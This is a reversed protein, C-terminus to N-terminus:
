VEHAPENDDADEMLDMPIETTSNLGSRRGKAASTGTQGDSAIGREVEERHMQHNLELLRDLIEHRAAEGLTWRLGEDTEHFGYDLNVDNWGYADCVTRDLDAHFSRLDRVDSEDDNGDHVRNYLSTLGLNHSTMTRSRIESLRHGIDAVDHDAKPFPFTEFCDPPNYVPRDVHTGGHRRAWTRHLTSSLVGFTFYDDAAIVTLREAYVTGTPVLMPLMVKSVRPIVVVNRFADIAKYLTTATHGFRWWYKVYGPSKKKDREPKVLAVVRAFCETYTQAEEFSCNRFDIVWRSPSADARSCLDDANLYPFLINRNRPYSKILSAAHEPTLTFGMGLVYSGIFARHSNAALRHPYGETRRVATLLTTIGTVVHGDLVPHQKDTPYTLWVQSIYVSAVGPWSRSRVARVIRWGNAMISDLGVERTDGQAISNTALFAISRTLQSARLFFYASLDANGRKGRGIDRVIHSRFDPGVSVAIKKAGIFPPNGLLADFGDRSDSFTEPFAIPWHLPIRSPNSEPRELNLLQQSLSQIENLAADREIPLSTPDLAVGVRIAFSNFAVNRERETKSATSLATAVIGDAVIRIADLISRAESNLRDKEAAERVTFTPLAELIRRVQAAKEVLPNITKTVDFLTADYLRRGVLPDIHVSRIQDLSNVGLLSDGVQIAHDLFSFPRDRAMTSLWLSLKAMEVAMPDRDVGYLCRDVVARRADLTLDERNTNSLEPKEAVWAEVLHDALYRCASVLFAGSGVAPDCIKLNLLEDTSRLRWDEREVGDKPGPSYVLPELTYRVMEDALERPTYETGSERRERTKKVILSGTPFVMPLGRLDTRLTYAYPLVRQSLSRDNDCVTNVLRRIDPDAGGAAARGDEVLDKITRESKGTKDVLFSILPADGAAASREVDALSVESEEGVKGVLGLEVATARIASHDLLGEYVHGIQEVDLSRFSLRGREKSGSESLPLTQIAELIAKVTLDDVPIPVSISDAWAAGSKRGELFAFRDPDFLRGGYPPMRLRDHHLGAFIARFIALLRCWAAGRRELPEDGEIAAQVDLQERLTSAAYNEAYLPESLPLLDREEAYLLFVLRMMVTVAAEYITRPPIGQLLVGNRELDAKSFANVLLEVAQRVQIGLRNTVESQAKESAEFLAELQQDEAVAFFRSAGLLGVFSRFIGREHSEAFLSTEWTAHGGVGSFPVWVLAVREGDSVLGIRVGHARCLIATRDIPSTNWRAGAIRKDFPTGHPYRAVLVRPRRLHPDMLAGDARLLLGHEPVECTINAVSDGSLYCPGWQLADRFLWLTWADYAQETPTRGTPFREAIDERSASTIAAFGSPFAQRLVPTTLFQGEPEVLRLWDAHTDTSRNV